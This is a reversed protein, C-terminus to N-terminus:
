FSLQFRTLLAQETERDGGAAEGGEFTTHQYDLVLKVARNLSWGLSAGANTITEVSRTPDAFVPFADPDVGLEGYRVSLLLAGWTGKAPEFARRPTAGRETLSEGTIAWSGAVQWARQALEASGADRRVEQRSETWEAFVLWPGSYVWMQPALRVRQGDATM